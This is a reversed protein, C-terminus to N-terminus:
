SAGTIGAAIEGAWAEIEKWDRYDGEPMEKRAAPIKRAMRYGFGTLGTLKDGYLAGFFVKTGRPNLGKYEEFEVPESAKLVDQGQKNKMETGVPGSSFLWFPSAAFVTKNSAVLARAEKLWHSMYAASGVVFGDYGSLNRVKGAELVDAELGKEQLKAGIFEAIGKTAGYKSAYAILIKKM